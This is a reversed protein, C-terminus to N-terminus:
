EDQGGKLSVKIVRNITELHRGAEASQQKMTVQITRKTQKTKANEASSSTQELAALLTKLARLSDKIVNQEQKGLKDVLANRVYSEYQQQVQEPKMHFEKAVVLADPHAGIMVISAELLELGNISEGDDSISTILGGISVARITGRLIMKYVLHAFDYIDYDIQGRGVLDGQSKTFKVWQGLPLETYDHSWPMPASKKISSLDIGEVKISEGMRDKGSNSLVADFQGYELGKTKLYDGIEKQLEQEDIEGAYFKQNLEKIRETDFGLQMGATYDLRDGIKYVAKKQEKKIPVKTAVTM